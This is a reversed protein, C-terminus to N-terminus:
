RMRTAWVRAHIQHRSREGNMLVIVSISCLNLKNIIKGLEYCPQPSTHITPLLTLYARNLETTFRYIARLFLFFLLFGQMGALGHNRSLYVIVLFNGHASCMSKNNDIKYYIYIYIYIYM